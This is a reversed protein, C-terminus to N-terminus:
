GKGGVFDDNFYSYTGFSDGTSVFVAAIGADPNVFALLHGNAIIETGSPINGFGYFDEEANFDVVAFGHDGPLVSFDFGDVGPGGIATDGVHVILHDDGLGGLLTNAGKSGDLFDNGVGGILQDSGPGGVLIDDGRGGDLTDNGSSGIILDDGVTGTARFSWGEPAMSFDEIVGM